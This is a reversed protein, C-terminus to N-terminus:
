WTGGDIIVQEIKGTSLNFRIESEILGQAGRLRVYVREEQISNINFLDDNNFVKTNIGLHNNRYALTPVLEYHIKAKDLLRAVNTKQIGAM